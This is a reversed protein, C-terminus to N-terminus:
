GVDGGTNAEKIGGTLPSKCGVSVRGSCPANAHGAFIGNAIVLKNGAGLPHCLPPVEEAVMTSTLLRGGYHLRGAAVPEDRMAWGTTDVRIIKMGERATAM